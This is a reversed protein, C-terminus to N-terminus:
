KAVTEVKATVVELNVTSKGSKLVLDLTQTGAVATVGANKLGTLRVSKGDPLPAAQIAAGRWSVTILQGIADGTLVAEDAGVTVREKAQLAAPSAEPTSKVPPIAVPIPREGSRQLIIEKYSKVEDASLELLQLTDADAATGIATLKKGAPSIVQAQSLRSGNLLFTSSKDSQAILTLKEGQSAPDFGPIPSKAKDRYRQTAFLPTVTVERNVALAATPVVLKIMSPPIADRWVPADRFGYAQGGILVAVPIV